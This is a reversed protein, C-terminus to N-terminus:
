LDNGQQEYVVDDLVLRGRVIVTRYEWCHTDFITPNSVNSPSSEKPIVTTVLPLAKRPQYANRTPATEAMAQWEATTKELAAGIINGSVGFQRQLDKITSAPAQDKAARIMARQECDESWLHRAM